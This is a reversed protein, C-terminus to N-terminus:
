RGMLQEHRQRWALVYQHPDKRYLWDHSRAWRPDQRWAMAHAEAPTLWHRHHHQDYYYPQGNSILIHFQQASALSPLLISGGVALAAIWRKIQKM